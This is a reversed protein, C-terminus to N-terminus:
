YGFAPSEGFTQNSNSGGTSEAINTSNRVLNIPAVVNSAGATGTVGTVFILIKSTASTPTVSVSVGTVDVFTTSTTTFADTKLASVVQLIKGVPATADLKSALLDGLDGTPDSGDITLAM